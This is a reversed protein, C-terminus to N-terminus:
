KFEVSVVVALQVKWTVPSNLDLINVCGDKPNPNSTVCLGFSNELQVEVTVSKTRRHPASSGRLFMRVRICRFSTSRMSMRSPSETEQKKQVLSVIPYYDYERNRSGGPGELTFHAICWYAAFRPTDRYPAPTDVDKNWKGKDEERCTKTKTKGRKATNALTSPALINVKVLQHYSTSAQM